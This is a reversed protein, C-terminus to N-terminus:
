RAAEATIEQMDYWDSIRVKRKTLDEIRRAMGLSPTRKGNVYRTVTVQSVGLKEAFDSHKINKDSLYSKLKM